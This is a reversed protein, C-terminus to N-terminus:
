LNLIRESMIKWIVNKVFIEKLDDLTQIIEEPIKSFALNKM